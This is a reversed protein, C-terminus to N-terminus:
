EPTQARYKGPTVGCRKRFVRIFYSADGFGSNLAIETISQDTTRLAHQAKAIRCRILYEFPSQGVTQRFCHCFYNPTMDALAALSSLRIDTAYHEELYAMAAKMRGATAEAAATNGDTYFHGGFIMGFFSFIAGKVAYPYGDDHRLDLATLERCLAAFRDSERGLLPFVRIEGSQLREALTMCVDSKKMLLPLNVLFCHYVCHLPEASHITGGPIFVVDGAHLDYSADNLSLQLSGGEVYLIEHEPHWHPLMRYRIYGPNIHYVAVPLGENGHVLKERYDM